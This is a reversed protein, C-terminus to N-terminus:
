PAETELEANAPLPPPNASPLASDPILTEDTTDVDEPSSSTSGQMTTPGNNVIESSGLLIEHCMDPCYFVSTDQCDTKGNCSRRVRIYKEKEGGSIIVHRQMIVEGKNDLVVFHTAGQAKPILVLTQPSDALINLHQPNGIIISGAPKDLRVLESKDPSLKLNPHTHANSDYVIGKEAASAAPLIDIPTAINDVVSQAFANQSICLVSFTAILLLRAYFM